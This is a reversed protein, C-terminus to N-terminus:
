RDAAEPVLRGACLRRSGDASCRGAGARGSRGLAGCILFAALGIMRLAMDYWRDGTVKLVIVAVVLLVGLSLWTYPDGLVAPM